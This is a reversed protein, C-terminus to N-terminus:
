LSFAKARNRGGTDIRGSTEGVTAAFRRHISSGLGFLWLMLLDSAGQVLFGHLVMTVLDPHTMFVPNSCLYRAKRPQIREVFLVFV